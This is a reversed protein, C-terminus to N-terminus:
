EKDFRPLISIDSCANWVQATLECDWRWSLVYEGPQITEPVRVHDIITVTTPWNGACPGPNTGYKGVAMPAKVPPHTGAKCPPPFLADPSQPLPNMAWMSGEPFTGERVYTANIQEEHGDNWRLTQPGEFDLVTRQFCEETM